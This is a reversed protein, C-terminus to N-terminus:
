IAEKVEYTFISIHLRDGINKSRGVIAITDNKNLILSGKYELCLHNELIADELKVQNSNDLVLDTVGSYAEHDVTSSSGLNMNFSNVATGGSTYDINKYITVVSQSGSSLAVDERGLRVVNVQLKFDGTYKLYAINEDTNAAALTRPFHFNFAGGDLSSITTVEEVTVAAVVLQNNGTVRAKYSRGTGDEIINSM